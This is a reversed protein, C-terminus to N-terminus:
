FSQVGETGHHSLRSLFMNMGYKKAITEHVPYGEHESASFGHLYVMSYPTKGKTSDAWVFRAENNPKINVVKSEREAIETELIQGSNAIVPYELTLPGTDALPYFWYVLLSLILLLLTRTIIKFIM